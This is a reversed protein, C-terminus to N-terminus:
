PLETEDEYEEHDEDEFATCSRIQAANRDLGRGRISGLPHPRLLYYFATSCSLQPSARGLVLVVVLVLIVPHEGFGTRAFVFCVPM